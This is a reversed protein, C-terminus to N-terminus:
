PGSINETPHFNLTAPATKGLDSALFKLGAKGVSREVFHGHCSLALSLGEGIVVKELPETAELGDEPLYLGSVRNVGQNEM